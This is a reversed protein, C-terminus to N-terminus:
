CKRIQRLTAKITQIKSIPLAPIFDSTCSNDNGKQKRNTACSYGTHRSIVWFHLILAKVGTCSTRLSVLGYKTFLTHNPKGSCPSFFQASFGSQGYNKPRNQWDSPDFSGKIREFASYGALMASPVQIFRNRRATTSACMM